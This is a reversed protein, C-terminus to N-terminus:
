NLRVQLLRGWTTPKKNLNTCIDNADTSASSLLGYVSFCEQERRMTWTVILRISRWFILLGICRVISIWYINKLSPKLFIWDWTHIIRILLLLKPKKLHLLQWCRTCTSETEFRINNNSLLVHAVLLGHHLWTSLLDYLSGNVRLELLIYDLSVYQDDLQSFVCLAPLWHHNKSDTLSRLTM